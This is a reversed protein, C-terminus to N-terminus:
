RRETFEVHEEVLQLQRALDESLRAKEERLSLYLEVLTKGFDDLAEGMNGGYGFERLAPSHAIVTEGEVSLVLEIPKIFRFRRNPVAAYSIAGPVVPVPDFTTQPQTPLLQNTSDPAGSDGVPTITAEVQEVLEPM